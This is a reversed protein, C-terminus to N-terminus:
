FKLNKISNIFQEQLNRHVKKSKLKILPQDERPIKVVRKKM